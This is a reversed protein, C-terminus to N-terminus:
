VLHLTLSVIGGSPCCSSTRASQACHLKSFSDPYCYRKCLGGYHIRNTTSHNYHQIDQAQGAAGMFARIASVNQEVVSKEVENWNQQENKVVLSRIIVKIGIGETVLQVSNSFPGAFHMTRSFPLCLKRLSGESLSLIM